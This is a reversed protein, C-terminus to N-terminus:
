KARIAVVTVDDLHQPKDIRRLLEERWETLPLSNIETLLASLKEIGAAGFSLADTLGDSYLVLTDGPALQISRASYRPDQEIGVPPDSYDHVRVESAGKPIVIPPMGGANVYRFERAPIDLLGYTITVFTDDGTVSAVHASADRITMALDSSFHERVAYKASAVLLAAPVGKGSVDAVMVGVREPEVPYFDYTDGGVERAPKYIAALEFGETSPLHAPLQASQVRRAIAMESETRVGQERLAAAANGLARVRDMLTGAIVAVLFLYPFTSIVDDLILTDTLAGHAQLTEMGLLAGTAVAACLVSARTSVIVAATIVVIYYLPAFPSQLGDSAYVVLSGFAMDAAVILWPRALVAGRRWLFTAVVTLVLVALAAATIEPRNLRATMFHLRSEVLVGIIVVWRVIYLVRGLRGPVAQRAANIEVNTEV